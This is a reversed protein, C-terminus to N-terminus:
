SSQVDDSRERLEKTCERLEERTALFQIRVYELYYLYSFAALLASFFLLAASGGLTPKLEALFFALLLVGSMLLAFSMAMLLKATKALRRSRPEM